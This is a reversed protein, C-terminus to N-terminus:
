LLTHGPLFYAVVANSDARDKAPVASMGPTLCRGLDAELWGMVGNFFEKANPGIQSSNV